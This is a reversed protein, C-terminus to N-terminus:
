NIDNEGILQISMEKVSDEEKHIIWAQICNTGLVVEYVWLAAQKGLFLTSQILLKDCLSHSVSKLILALRSLATM